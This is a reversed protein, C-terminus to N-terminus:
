ANQLKWLREFLSRQLRENKESMLKPREEPNGMLIFVKSRLILHICLPEIIESARYVICYDPKFEDKILSYSSECNLFYIM